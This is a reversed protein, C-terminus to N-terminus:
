ARGRERRPEASRRCTATGCRGARLGCCAPRTAPVIAPARGASAAQWPPRPRMARWRSQSPPTTPRGTCSSRRLARVELGRRRRARRWGGRGSRSICVRRRRLGATSSAAAAASAQRPRGGLRPLTPISRATDQSVAGAAPGRRGMAVSPLGSRMSCPLNRRPTASWSCRRPSRQLAWRTHLSGGMRCRSCRSPRAPTPRETSGEGIGVKRALGTQM